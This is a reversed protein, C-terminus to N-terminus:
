EEATNEQILIAGDGMRDKLFRWRMKEACIVNGGYEQPDEVFREAEDYWWIRGEKIVLSAELIECTWEESCPRMSFLDVGSFEMEITGVTEMQSQIILKLCRKTNLPYMGFDEAVYAGSVYNLEKICSDHFGYVRSVFKRADTETMIENWM